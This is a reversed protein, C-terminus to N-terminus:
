EQIQDEGDVHDVLGFELCRQASMYHDFDLLKKMRSMTFNPQKEHIKELYINLMIDEVAKSEKVAAEVNTIHDDLAMEGRHLMLRSNESMIRKDGAQLIITAISMVSGLVKIEVENQCLKITDYLAFGSSVCGGDSNLIITIEGATKDLFMLIKIFKDASEQDIEGNLYIIRARIDFNHELLIDLNSQKNSMIAGNLKLEM